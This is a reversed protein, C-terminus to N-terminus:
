PNPQSYSVVCYGDGAIPAGAVSVTVPLQTGGWPTRQVVQYLNPATPLNDSASQLLSLAGARGVTISAGVTYPTIIEVMCSYVIANAPILATSDQVAAISIPFDITQQVGSPLLSFQRKWRGTTAAVVDTGSVPDTSFKDLVYWDRQDLVYCVAGDPLTASIVNQLSDPNGTGLLFKRPELIRLEAPPHSM